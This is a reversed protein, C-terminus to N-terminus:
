KDVRSICKSYVEFEDRTCFEEGEWAVNNERRNQM